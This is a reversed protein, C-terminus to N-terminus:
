SPASQRRSRERIWLGAAAAILAGLAAYVLRQQRRAAAAARAVIAENRLCYADIPEWEMRVGLAEGIGAVSGETRRWLRYYDPNDELNGCWRPDRHDYLGPDCNAPEDERGCSEPHREAERRRVAREEATLPRRCFYENWKYRKLPEYHYEPDYQFRSCDETQLRCAVEVQGPPCKKALERERQDYESAGPEPAIDAWATGAALLVGVALWWGGVAEVASLALGATSM